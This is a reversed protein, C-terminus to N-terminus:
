SNDTKGPEVPPAPPTPKPTPKPAPTSEKPKDGTSPAPTKPESTQAPTEVVPAEVTPEVVPAPPNLSLDWELWAGDYVKLNRYGANYLALYTQAARVSTKCYMIVQKDTTVKNEIYRIKIDQVSKYTNDFYNNDLYNMLISGPINGEAFEEPTRTDLIVTNSKPESAQAKVEEITAIINTNKDKTTYKVSSVVPIETNIELKAAEIAKIGGSIVKINQHGYVQLTWFMRAAEMNNNNDYILISTDNGIGKAGLVVEIQEKPALMNPVPINIVINQLTINVAGALHGKAYDEPKQMDVIVVEQKNMYDKVEKAEIIYEGEDSTSKSCGAIIIMSSILIFFLLYKTLNKM